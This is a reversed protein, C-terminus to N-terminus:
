ADTSETAKGNSTGAQNGSREQWTAFEMFSPGQGLFILLFFFFLSFRVVVASQSSRRSAISTVLPLTWAVIPHQSQPFFSSFPASSLSCSEHIIHAQHHHYLYPDLHM